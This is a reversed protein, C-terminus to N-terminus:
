MKDVDEMKSSCGKLVGTETREGRILFRGVTEREMMLVLPGTTAGDIRSGLTFGQIRCSVSTASPIAALGAPPQGPLSVLLYISM